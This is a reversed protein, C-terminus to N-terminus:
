ADRAVPTRRILVRHAPLRAPRLGAYRVQHAVAGHEAYFSSVESYLGANRVAVSSVVRTAGCWACHLQRQGTGHPYNTVPHERRAKPHKYPRLWNWVRKQRTVEYDSADDFKPTNDLDFWYGRTSVVRNM